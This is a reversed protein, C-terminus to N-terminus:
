KEEVLKKAAELASKDYKGTRSLYYTLAPLLVGGALAGKLRFWPAAAAAGVLATPLLGPGTRKFVNVNKKVKVADEPTMLQTLDNVLLGPKLGGEPIKVKGAIKELEDEFADQYIEEFM